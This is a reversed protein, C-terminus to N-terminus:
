PHEHTGRRHRTASDHQADLWRHHRARHAEMASAQANRKGELPGAVLGDGGRPAQRGEFDASCATGSRGEIQHRIATPNGQPSAWDDSNM